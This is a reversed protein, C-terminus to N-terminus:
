AAKKTVQVGNIYTVELTFKINAKVKGSADRTLKVNFNKLFDSDSGSYKVEVSLTGTSGYSIDFVLSGNKVKIEGTLGLNYQIKSAGWSATAKFEIKAAAFTYEADLSLDLTGSKGSGKYTLAGEIILRNGGATKHRLSGKVAAKIREAPDALQNYGVAISWSATGVDYIHRGEIAFLAQIDGDALRFELGVAVAKCRGKLSLVLNPNTIEGSASCKFAIGDPQLQWKGAFAIEAPRIATTDGFTNTTSAKFVLLDRGAAAVDLNQDASLPSAEQSTIATQGGNTMRLVIKSPGDFALKGFVVVIQGTESDPGDTFIYTVDNEDDVNIYGNFATSSAKTVDGDSPTLSVVLQNRANFSYHAEILQRSGTDDHFVLCNRENASSSDASWRGVSKNADLDLVDGTETFSLRRNPLHVPLAIM